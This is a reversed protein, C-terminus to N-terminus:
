VHKHSCVSLFLYDTDTVTSLLAQFVRFMTLLRWLVQTDRYSKGLCVFRM